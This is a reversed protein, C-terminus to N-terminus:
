NIEKLYKAARTFSEETFVQIYVGYANHGKKLVFGRWHYGDPMRWSLEEELKHYHEKWKNRNPKGWEDRWRNKSALYSDLLDELYKQDEEIWKKENEKSLELSM